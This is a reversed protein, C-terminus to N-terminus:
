KAVLLDTLRKRASQAVRLHAPYHGIAILMIVAECEPIGASVRMARDIDMEVSWNLCCTAVGLSHLAHILSMSFMGGDIWCQNREGPTVFAQLDTTVVIVKNVQDGFGRNGNQFALV